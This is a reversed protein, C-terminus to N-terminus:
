SFVLREYDGESNKRGRRSEGNCINL